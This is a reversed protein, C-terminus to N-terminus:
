HPDIWDAQILAAAISALVMVLRVFRARRV